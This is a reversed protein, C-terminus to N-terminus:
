MYGANAMIEEITILPKICMKRSMTLFIEVIGYLM